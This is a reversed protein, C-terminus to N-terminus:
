GASVRWFLRWQDGCVGINACHSAGEEEEDEHLDIDGEM